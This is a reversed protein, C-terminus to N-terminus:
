GRFRSDQVKFGSVQFKFSSDQIRCGLGEERSHFEQYEKGAEWIGKFFPILQTRVMLNTAKGFLMLNHKNRQVIPFDAILFQLM